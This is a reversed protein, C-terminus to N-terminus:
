LLVDGPIGFWSHIEYTLRGSVIAPDSEVLKRIEDKNTSNYISVGKLVADDLVPSNVLLIGKARLTLLHRLHEQQIKAATGSDQDRKSGNKLLVMTYPKGTGVIHRIDEDTIISQDPSM